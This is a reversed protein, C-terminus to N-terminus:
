EDDESTLKAQGRVLLERRLAYRWSDVVADPSPLCRIPLGAHRCLLIVKLGFPSLESTWLVWPLSATTDMTCRPKKCQV